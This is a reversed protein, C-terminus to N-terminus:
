WWKRNAVTAAAAAPAAAAVYRICKMSAAMTFNRSNLELHFRTFFKRRHITLQNWLFFWYIVEISACSVTVFHTLHFQRHANKNNWKMIAILRLTCEFMIWVAWWVNLKNDLAAAAAAAEVQKQKCGFPGLWRFQIWDFPFILFGNILQYLSRRIRAAGYWNPM